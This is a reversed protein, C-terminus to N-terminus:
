IGIDLVLCDRLDLLVIGLSDLHMGINGVLDLDDRAGILGDASNSTWDCAQKNSMLGVGTWFSLIIVMRTYFRAVKTFSVSLSSLIISMRGMLLGTFTLSVPAM